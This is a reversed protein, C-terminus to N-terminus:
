SKACPYNVPHPCNTKEGGDGNKCLECMILGLHPLLNCEPIRYPGLRGTLLGHWSQDKHTNVFMKMKENKKLQISKWGWHEM